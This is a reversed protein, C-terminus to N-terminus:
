INYKTTLERLDASSVPLPERAATNTIHLGARVIAKLVCSCCVYRHTGCVEGRDVPVAQASVFPKIPQLWGSHQRFCHATHAYAQIRGIFVARRAASGCASSIVPWCLFSSRPICLSSIRPISLLRSASLAFGTHDWLEM